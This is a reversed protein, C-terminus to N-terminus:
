GIRRGDASARRPDPARSAAIDRLIQSIDRRREDRQRVEDRSSQRGDIRRLIDDVIMTRM